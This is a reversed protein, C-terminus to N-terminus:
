IIHILMKVPLVQPRVSELGLNYDNGNGNEFASTVIRFLGREGYPEGQTDYSSAEANCLRLPQMLLSPSNTLWSTM